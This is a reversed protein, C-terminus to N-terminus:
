AAAGTIYDVWATVGANPVNMRGTDLNYFYLGAAVAPRKSQPGQTITFPSANAEGIIAWPFAVYDRRDVIPIAWVEYTTSGKLPMVPSGGNLSSLGTGQPMYAFFCQTGKPGTGFTKVSAATYPNPAYPDNPNDSSLGGAVSRILTM